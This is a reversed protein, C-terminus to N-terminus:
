SIASSCNDTATTALADADEDLLSELEYSISTSITAGMSAAWCIKSTVTLITLSVALKVSDICAVKWDFPMVTVADEIMIAGGSIFITVAVMVVTLAVWVLAVAVVMERVLLVLEVLLVPVLVAVRMV